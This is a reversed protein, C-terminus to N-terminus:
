YGFCRDLAFDAVVHYSKLTAFLRFIRKLSFCRFGDCTQLVLRDEGYEQLIGLNKRAHKPNEPAHAAWTVFRLCIASM